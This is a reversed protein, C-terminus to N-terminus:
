CDVRIVMLLLGHAGFAIAFGVVDFILAAEAPAAHGDAATDSGEDEGEDPVEDEAVRTGQNL